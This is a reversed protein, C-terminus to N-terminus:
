PAFHWHSTPGAARMQASPCHQSGCTGRCCAFCHGPLQWCIGIGSFSFPMSRAEAEFLAPFFGKESIPIKHQLLTLIDAELKLDASAAPTNSKFFKLACLRGSRSQGLLVSGHSGQGLTFPSQKDSDASGWDNSVRMLQYQGIKEPMQSPENCPKVKSDEKQAKEPAATKQQYGFHIGRARRQLLFEQRSAKNYKDKEEAPLNKWVGGLRRMELAFDHRSAGKTATNCDELFLAFARRAKPILGAAVAKARATNHKQKKRAAKIAPRQKGRVRFRPPAAHCHAMLLAQSLKPM